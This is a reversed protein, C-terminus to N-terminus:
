SVDNCGLHLCNQLFTKSIKPASQNEIHGLTVAALSLNPKIVELGNTQKAGAGLQGGTIQPLNGERHM